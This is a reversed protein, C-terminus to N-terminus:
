YGCRVLQWAGDGSRALWWQWGTYETDPMWIGAGSPSLFDTEFCICRDYSQGPVAENLLRLHDDSSCEDGSYRVARLKCGDWGKVIERILTVASDMDERSFIASTGYDVTVNDSMLSALISSDFLQKLLPCNEENLLVANELGDAPIENIEGARVPFFLLDGLWGLVASLDLDTGFMDLIGGGTTEGSAPDSDFLGTLWSLDVEEGTGAAEHAETPMAEATGLDPLESGFSTLFSGLDYWKGFIYFALGASKANLEEDLELRFLIPITKGPISPIRITRGDPGPAAYGLSLLGGFTEQILNKLQALIDPFSRGHQKELTEMDLAQILRDWAHSPDKELEEPTPVLSPDIGLLEAARVLVDAYEGKRAMIDNVRQMFGDIDASIILLMWNGDMFHEQEPLTLTVLARNQAPKEPVNTSRLGTADLAADLAASYSEMGLIKLVWPLLESLQPYDTGPVMACTVAFWFSRAEEPSMGGSTCLRYALNNLLSSNGHVGGRDNITTPAKVNQVYNIDWVYEPQGYRHPDSMSRVAKKKSNEGMLWETDATAGMIMECLNGQIDSLAENIAGYDNMYPNYTMMSGTVCHTFEHALVDLCQSFDNIDSSLFVQWGYYKGAFAANDVPVKDRTCYNKLILMPTGLGDGGIWGIEKYYDWAKCYNYLSLLCTTDWGTNDASAELVVKGSNYVFEYCDAVAIRRELNGLYYMGTRTDRMLSVTIEQERGDSLKVKGTYEAPEMFEFVYAADYGSTGAEDGPLITPLSYLYEGKTTVYHALYPLGSSNAGANKIGTTYVAWVFRCEGKDNEDNPDLERRVPLIVMETRGKLLEAGSRGNGAVQKMVLEEAQEATIGEADETDPLESEVSAILGLMRGDPATVVKVAGGPVTTGAYVQQFVYYRNGKGDSLTRWPLFATHGDGGIQPLVSEVVAAADEENLILSDTCAGDVFTVRGNHMYVKAGFAELDGSAPVTTEAKEAFSGCATFLMVAALLVSLTKKWHIM